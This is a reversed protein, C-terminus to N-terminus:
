VFIFATQPGVPGPSPSLHYKRALTGVRHLRKRMLVDASFSTQSQHQKERSLIVSNIAFFYIFLYIM